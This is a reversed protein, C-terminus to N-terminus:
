GSTATGFMFRQSNTKLLGVTLLLFLTGSLLPSYMEKVSFCLQRRKKTTIMSGILFRSKVNPCSRCNLWLKPWFRCKCSRHFVPSQKAIKAGLQGSYMIETRPPTAQPAVIDGALAPKLISSNVYWSWSLPAFARMVWEVSSSIARLAESAEPMGRVFIKTMPSPGIGSLMRENSTKVLMRPDVRNLAGSILMLFSRAASGYELPVVPRGLPTLSM